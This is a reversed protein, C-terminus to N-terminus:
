AILKRLYSQAVRQAAHQFFQAVQAPQWAHASAM